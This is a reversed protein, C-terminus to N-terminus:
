GDSSVHPADEDKPRAGESTSSSLNLPDPWDQPGAGVPTLALRRLRVWLSPRSVNDVTAVLETLSPDESEIVALDIPKGPVIARLPNIPTSVSGRFIGLTRWQATLLYAGQKDLNQRTEIRV